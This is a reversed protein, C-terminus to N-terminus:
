AMPDGAGAFDVGVQDVGGHGAIAGFFGVDDGAADEGGERLVPTEGAGGRLDAHEAPVADARVRVVVFKGKLALFPRELFRFSLYAVGFSIGVFVSCVLPAGLISKGYWTEARLRNAMTFFVIGHYVYIGYSYRGFARLVPLNLMRDLGSKTGNQSVAWFVACGYLCGYLSFGVTSTFYGRSFAERAFVWICAIGALAVGFLYPCFKKAIKSLAPDRVALAVLGGILLSDMRSLTSTFIIEPAPLVGPRVVAFRIALAVLIGALSFWKLKRAPIWWV